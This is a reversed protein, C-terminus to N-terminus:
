EPMSYYMEPAIPLRRPSPCIHVYYRPSTRRPGESDNAGVSEIFNISETVHNVPTPCHGWTCPRWNMERTGIHVCRPWRRPVPRATVRLRSLTVYFSCYGGRQGRIRINYQAPPHRCLPISEAGNTRNDDTWLIEDHCASETRVGGRREASLRYTRRYRQWLNPSTYTGRSRDGRCFAWLTEEWIKRGDKRATSYDGGRCVTKKRSEGSRLPCRPRNFDCLFAM